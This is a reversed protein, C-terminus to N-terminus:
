ARPGSVGKLRRTPLLGSEIWSSGSQHTSDSFVVVLATFPLYCGGHVRSCWGVVQAHGAENRWVDELAGITLTSALESPGDRPDTKTTRAQGTAQSDPEPSPLHRPGRKAPWPRCRRCRREPRPQATEPPAESGTGLSSYHSDAALPIGGSARAHAPGIAAPNLVSGQFRVRAAKAEVSQTFSRPGAPARDFRALSPPSLGAYPARREVTGRRRGGARTERICLARRGPGRRTSVRSPGPKVPSPVGQLANM